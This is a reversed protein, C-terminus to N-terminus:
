RTSPRTSMRPYSSTATQGHGDTITVTLTCAQSAGTINKPATWTPNQVTADAFSGHTPLGTCVAAWAYSLSHNLSDSAAVAIAVPGLSAVPDPTGFAPTTVTIADPVSNVTQTHVSTATQGAGDGITVTIACTQASGTLNAPATWTPTRLAADNFSGHGPLGTCLASWAYTLAHEHSDTAAVNLTVAGASAVPSPTGSAPTTVTIVDPLLSVRQTLSSSATKGNGDSVTVEIACTQEAGTLNKPATWTPTQAAANSFSGHTPLGTCLATWAYTLDHEYSDTASVSLATTGSSAVPNVTSAAPTAITLTHEAANVTQTLSSTATKGAGDSVTVEIACTQEAGTINKPATWTPTQAAANSFSGHTPLGTCLATWAYTLAHEYSDTASVSLTTTGLSAVPNVTSAAPTAITLTHEAPDM